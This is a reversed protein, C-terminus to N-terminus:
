ATRDEGIHSVPPSSELAGQTPPSSIQAYRRRVGPDESNPDLNDAVFDFLVSIPLVFSSRVHRSDLKIVVQDHAAPLMEVRQGCANYQLTKM